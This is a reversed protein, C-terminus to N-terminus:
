TGQPEAVKPTGLAVVFGGECFEQCSYLGKLLAVRWDNAGERRATAVAMGLLLDKLGDVGTREFTSTIPYELSGLYLNVQKSYREHLNFEVFHQRLRGFLEDSMGPCQEISYRVTLAGSAADISAKARLFDHVSVDELYVHVQHEEPQVPALKRKGRNCVGCCPVLNLPFISFLKFEGRQLLHDLESVQGFGCYPCVDALLKIAARLKGLRRGDQVLGYADHVADLLGQREGEGKLEGSPRGSKRRYEGYYSLLLDKEAESVSVPLADTPFAIDLHERLNAVDLPMLNWM